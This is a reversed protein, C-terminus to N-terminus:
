RAEKSVDTTNPFRIGFLSMGGKQSDDAMAASWILYM